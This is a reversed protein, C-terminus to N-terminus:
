VRMLATQVLIASGVLAFAKQKSLSLPSSSSRHEAFKWAAWYVGIVVLLLGFFNNWPKGAHGAGKIAAIQALVTPTVTDGERAIVQNRKLSVEVPKVRNAEAERATSTRPQDLVVNPRILPLVAATLITRQDATWGPLNLIRQELNRRAASLSTMRTRPAPVIMQSAASHIDVLFIDQQLRDADADDYIYGAGIERILSEIRELDADDFGNDIIAQAVAPGGEGHWTFSKNGSSKQKQLDDWASRFSQASTEARSSDFNFVARTSERADAKRRETEVQDVATLDTPAVISRSLVDGLKYNDNFSSARNTFLLFTTLLVLVSCGILFRQRPQFVMLPRIAYATLKDRAQSLPTKFRPRLGM